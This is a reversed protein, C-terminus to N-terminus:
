NILFRYLKDVSNYAIVSTNKGVNKVDFYQLQTFQKHYSNVYNYLWTESAPLRSTNIQLSKVNVKGYTKINM